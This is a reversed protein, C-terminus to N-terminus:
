ELGAGRDCILGQADAALAYLLIDTLVVGFHKKRQLYLQCYLCARRLVADAALEPRLSM